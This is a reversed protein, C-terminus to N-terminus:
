AQISYLGLFLRLFTVNVKNLEKVVLNVKISLVLRNVHNLMFLPLQFHNLRSVIRNLLLIFFCRSKIM